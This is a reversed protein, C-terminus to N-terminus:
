EDEEDFSRVRSVGEENVALQPHGSYFVAGAGLVNCMLYDKVDLSVRGPGKIDITATNTVCKLANIRGSGSIEYDVKDARGAVFVDGGDEIDISLNDVDLNKKFVVRADNELEMELSSAKLDNNFLIDANGDATLKSLGSSTTSIELVSPRFRLHNKAPRIYLVGKKTYIQLNEFINQDATVRLYHTSDQQEYIIAPNGKIDIESYDDIYVRDSVVVNNGVMLKTEGGKCASMGATVLLLSLIGSVLKTRNM